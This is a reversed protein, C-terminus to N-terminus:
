HSSELVQYRLNGDTYTHGGKLVDLGKSLPLFTNPLEIIKNYLRVVTDEKYHEIHDRIYAIEDVSCEM